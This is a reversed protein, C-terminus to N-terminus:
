GVMEYEAWLNFYNELETIEIEVWDGENLKQWMEYKIFCDGHVEDNRFSIYCGEGDKVYKTLVECDVTYTEVEHRGFLFDGIFFHIALISVILIGTLVREVWDKAMDKAGKTTYLIAYSFPITLYITHLCIRNSGM